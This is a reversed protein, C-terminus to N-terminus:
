DMSEQHCPRKGVFFDKLILPTKKLEVTTGYYKYTRNCESAKQTM